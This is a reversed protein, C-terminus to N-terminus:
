PAVVQEDFIQTADFSALEFPKFDKPPPDQSGVRRLGISLADLIKPESFLVPYLRSPYPDDGLKINEQTYNIIKSKLAALETDSLKSKVRLNMDLSLNILVPRSFSMQFVQGNSATVPHTISGTTTVGLPKNAWLAECIELEDGGMVYATFTHVGEEIHVAQVGNLGKLKAKIADRTSTGSARLEDLRRLRLADDSEDHRGLIADKPNTIGLWGAQLTTIQNLKNAKVHVPGVEDAIMDAELVAENPSDNKIEAVTRFRANLNDSSTAISDKPLSAGGALRILVKVQSRKAMRRYTGTLSCLAELARGHAMNADLSALLGAGMEWVQRTQNAVIAIIQGAVTEPGCSLSPHIEKQLAETLEQKITHLDKTKFGQASLGWTPTM